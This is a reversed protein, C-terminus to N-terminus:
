LRKRQGPAKVLSYCFLAQKIRMGRSVSAMFETNDLNCSFGLFIDGTKPRRPRREATPKSHEAPFIVRRKFGEPINRNVKHDRCSPAPSVAAGRRVKDFDASVQFGTNTSGWQPWSAKM